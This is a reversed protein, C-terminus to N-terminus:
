GLGCLGIWLGGPDCAFGGCDFGFRGLTKAVKAPKRDDLPNVNEKVYKALDHIESETAKRGVMFLFLEDIRDAPKSKANVIKCLPTQWIEDDPLKGPHVTIMSQIRKNNMMKM